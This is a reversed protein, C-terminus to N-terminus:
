VLLKLNCSCINSALLSQIKIAFALSLFQFYFSFFFIWIFKDNTLIFIINNLVITFIHYHYGSYFWIIVIFIFIVVIFLENNVANTIWVYLKYRWSSFVFFFVIVTKHNTCPRDFVKKPFHKLYFSSIIQEFKMKIQFFM